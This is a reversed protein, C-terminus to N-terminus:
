TLRERVLTKVMEAFSMTPAWGTDARLKSADGVLRGPRKHLLAPDEEVHAAFDLGVAAFAERAFDGVTHPVGTAVVYDGVEAASAAAAARAALTRMAAVYDAAFGWDVIAGLHGLKLTFPEGRNKAARAACAGDVIRSSVFGRGRLRSEHNYLFGVSM